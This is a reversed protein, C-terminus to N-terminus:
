DVVGEKKLQELINDLKKDFAEDESETMTSATESEMLELETTEFGNEVFIQKITADAGGLEEFLEDIIMDQNLNELFLHVGRNAGENVSEDILEVYERFM